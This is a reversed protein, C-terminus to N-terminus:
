SDRRAEKMLARFRLLDSYMRQGLRIGMICALLMCPLEHGDTTTISKYALALFLAGCLATTLLDTWMYKIVKWM